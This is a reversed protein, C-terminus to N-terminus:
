KVKIMHQELSTKRLGKELCSPYTGKEQHLKSHQEPTVQHPTYATEPKLTNNIDLDGTKLDVEPTTEVAAVERGSKGLFTLGFTDWFYIGFYFRQTLGPVLL